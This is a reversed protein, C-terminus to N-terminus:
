PLTTSSTTVGGAGGGGGNGGGGGGTGGGGVGTDNTTSGDFSAPVQEWLDGTGRGFFAIAGIAVVTILLVVMATELLNAGLESRLFRAYWGNTSLDTRAVSEGHRTRRVAVQRQRM